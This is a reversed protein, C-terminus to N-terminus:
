SGPHPSTMTSRYVEGDRQVGVVAGLDPLPGDVITLVRVSEALEVLALRHPSPWGTAPSMLETRALVTGVPPVAFPTAHMAGCKPCPGARPLYRLTCSPCRSVLIALTPDSM